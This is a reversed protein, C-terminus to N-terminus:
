KVLAKLANLHPLPYRGIFEPSILRKVADAPTVREFTILRDYVNASGVFVALPNIKAELLKEPFGSGNVCEEHQLMIQTVHLDIHKLDKIRKAGEMPHTKYLALEPETFDKLPRSVNQGSFFHGVDHLLGGLALMPLNKSDTYGTAKAIEVALAAVTVGHHALSQDTNEIALMNKFAKDEAMLFDIFKQSGEKAAQYAAQDEPNEFVAEAADQQLGQVIQSRNELTAGSKSDYAKEINHSMYDRYAQEDEVRIFMKKLKKEKLRALRAGEFSDGKRCYLIHKAGVPVYADFNIKQDGRLVSIRIPTYSM